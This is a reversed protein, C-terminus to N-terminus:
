EGAFAGAVGHKRLLNLLNGSFIRERNEPVIDRNVRCIFPLCDYGPFDTGYLLRDDGFLRSANKLDQWCLGGNQGSIDLLVDPLDVLDYIVEPNLHSAVIQLGPLAKAVGPLERENHLQVILNRRRCERFLKMWREDTFPINCGYAVNEGCWILGRECFMDMCYISRETFGPHISLGPYIFGPYKDYLELAERNGNELAEADKAFVGTLPCTIAGSVGNAQLFEIMEVADWGQENKGIHVHSDIILM